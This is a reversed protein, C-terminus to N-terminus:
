YLRKYYAERRMLDRIGEIQRSLDASEKWSGILIAMMMGGLIVFPWVVFDSVFIIKLAVLFLCLTVGFGVSISFLRIIWLGITKKELNDRNSNRKDLFKMVSRLFILTTILGTIISLITGLTTLDKM